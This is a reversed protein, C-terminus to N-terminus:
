KYLPFKAGKLIGVVTQICDATYMNRVDREATNCEKALLAKIAKYGAASYQEYSELIQESVDLQPTASQKWIVERALM